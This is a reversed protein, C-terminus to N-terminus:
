DGDKALGKAILSKVLDEAKKKKGPGSRRRVIRSAELAKDPTLESIIEEIEEDTLSALDKGELLEEYSAM